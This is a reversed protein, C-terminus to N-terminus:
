STPSSEGVTPSETLSSQGLSVKLAAQAMSVRGLVNGVHGETGNLKDVEALFANIQRGNMHERVFEAGIEQDTALNLIWAVCSEDAECITESIQIMDIQQTAVQQDAVKRVREALDFVQRYYRRQEARTFEELVFDIGGLQFSISQRQFIDEIEPM